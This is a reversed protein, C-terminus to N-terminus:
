RSALVNIVEDPALRLATSIDRAKLGSAALRCIEAELAEGTPRHQQARADYSTDTLMATRSM